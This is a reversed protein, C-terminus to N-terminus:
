SGPSLGSRLRTKEVIETSVERWWEGSATRLRILALTSSSFSLTPATLGEEAGRGGAEGCGMFFGPHAPFLPTCPGDPSAAGGTEGAAASLREWAGGSEVSLYLWGGVRSWGAAHFRGAAGRAMQATSVRVGSPLFAVPILPPIAAASLCGRTSFLASQLISVERESSGPPLVALLLREEAM